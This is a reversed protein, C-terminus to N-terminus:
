IGNWQIRPHWHVARGPLPNDSPADNKDGPFPDDCLLEPHISDALQDSYQGVFRHDGSATMGSPLSGALYAPLRRYTDPCRDGFQFVPERGDALGALRIVKQAVVSSRIYRHGCAARTFILHASSPGM